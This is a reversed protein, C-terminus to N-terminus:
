GRDLAFEWRLWTAGCDFSQLTSEAYSGALRGDVVAIELRWLGTSTPSGGCTPAVESPVPGAARYRGDEFRLPPRGYSRDFPTVVCPQDSCDIALTVSRVAPCGEDEFGACDTLAGEGSWEGAHSSPPATGGASPSTSPLLDAPSGDDVVAHVAVVVAILVALALPFGVVAWRPTRPPVAGGYPDTVPEGGSRSLPEARDGAQL